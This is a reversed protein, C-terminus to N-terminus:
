VYCRLGPSMSHRVPIHLMCAHLEILAVAVSASSVARTPAIVNATGERGTRERGGRDRVDAHSVYVQISRERDCLEAGSHEPLM